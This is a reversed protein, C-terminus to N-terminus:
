TVRTRGLTTGDSTAVHSLWWAASISSSSRCDQGVFALACLTITLTDLPSGVRASPM